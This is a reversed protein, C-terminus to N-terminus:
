GLLRSLVRAWNIGLEDLREGAAVGMRETALRDEYLRDLAQALAEPQPACVLGNRGHEVLELVGGADQTTLIAKGSHSAELSPYGYSDEDFPLYAAALCNALLDVKREESIWAHEIEVRDELGYRAVIALLEKVYHEGSSTGCIRLRVPTRTHRMAEILLHQRKHHEIRCIYVVENNFGRCHFREGNYLPPYLVESDVRNFDRLRKSVVASNTFVARAERLARTDAEHLADRIARHRADDPFGRYPSDWLDYFSRIHHIFWLVKHPHPIVHAPPRFCIVRDAAELHVWRYAAMQAFLQNPSDDHPLYIREVEHGEDALKLALWEVINRGGGYVFPVFSSCLAIKM